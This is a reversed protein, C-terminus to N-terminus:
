PDMRRCSLALTRCVRFQFRHQRFRRCAPNVNAIGRDDFGRAACWVQWGPRVRTSDALTKTLASYADAFAQVAKKCRM